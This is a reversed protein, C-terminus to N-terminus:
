NKYGNSNFLFSAGQYWAIAEEKLPESANIKSAAGTGFDIKFFSIKKQPSLIVLTDNKVYGM